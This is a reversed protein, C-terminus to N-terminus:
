HILHIWDARYGVGFQSPKTLVSGFALASSVRQGQSTMAHTLSLFFSDRSTDILAPRHPVTGGM